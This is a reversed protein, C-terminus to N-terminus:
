KTATLTVKATSGGKRTFARGDFSDDSTFESKEDTEIPVGTKLDVTFVVAETSKIKHFIKASQMASDISYEHASTAEIKAVRKGKEEGVSLLKFTRKLISSPTFTSKIGARAYDQQIDFDSSWTEGVKVAEKPYSLGMFGFRQMRSHRTTTCDQAAADTITKLTGEGTYVIDFTVGVFRAVHDQVFDQEDDTDASDVTSRTSFQKQDAKTVKVKLLQTTVQDAREEFKWTEKVRYTLVQGEKLNFRLLVPAQDQSEGGFGPLSLFALTFLALSPRVTRLM